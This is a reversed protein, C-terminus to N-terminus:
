NDGNNTVHFLNHVNFAAFAHDKHADSKEIMKGGGTGGEEQQIRMRWAHLTDVLLSRM